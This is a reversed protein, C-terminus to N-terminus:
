KQALSGQKGLFIEKNRLVFILAIAAMVVSEICKTVQTMAITEQLFNLMFHFAFCAFVSRNNKVCLWTFLFTIPIGSLMFNVAFWPSAQLVEYQYSGVILFLPLHWLAWVISFLCTAKLESGTARMSEYGYGRWAVEEILAALLLTFLTPIAGVSFSFGETFSFQQISQGFALSILISVVIAGLFILTLLLISWPKIRRVDFLRGLYDRRMEHSGSTMVLILGIIAPAFLGLVMYVTYTDGVQTRSLYAAYFWFAWTFLYSLIWFTRPKYSKAQM